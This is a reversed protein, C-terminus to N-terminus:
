KRDVYYNQQQPQPELGIDLLTEKIEKLDKEISASVEENKRNNREENVSVWLGQLHEDSLHSLNLPKSVRCEEGTGLSLSVATHESCRVATM